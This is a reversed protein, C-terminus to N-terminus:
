KNSALNRNFHAETIGYMLACIHTILLELKIHKGSLKKAGSLQIFKDEVKQFIPPESDKIYVVTDDKMEELGNAKLKALKTYSKLLENFIKDDYTLNHAISNRLKNLLRLELRLGKRKKFLGLVQAVEIKATYTLRSDKDLKEIALKEIYFNLAHETLIHGKIILNDIDICNGLHSHLKDFIENKTM